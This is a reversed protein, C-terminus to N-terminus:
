DDYEPWIPMEVVTPNWRGSFPDGEKQVREARYKKEAELAHDKCYGELLEKCDEKEQAPKSYTIRPCPRHAVKVNSVSWRPMTQYM